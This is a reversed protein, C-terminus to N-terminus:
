GAAGRAPEGVGEQAEGEPGGGEEEGQALDRCAGLFQSDHRRGEEYLKELMAPDLIQDVDFWGPTETYTAAIYAAQDVLRNTFDDLAEPPLHRRRVGALVGMRQQDLITPVRHTFTGTYRTGNGLRYDVHVKRLVSVEPETDDAGGAKMDELIKSSSREGEGGGPGDELM